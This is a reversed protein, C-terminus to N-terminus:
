CSMVTLDYCQKLFYTINKNLYREMLNLIVKLAILDNELYNSLPTTVDGWLYFTSDIDYKEVVKM